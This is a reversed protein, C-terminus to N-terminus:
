AFSFFFLVLWWVYAHSCWNEGTKDGMLFRSGNPDVQTYSTIDGPSIELIKYIVGNFYVISNAGIVIVGGFPQPIPIVTHATPELNPQSWPGACLSLM